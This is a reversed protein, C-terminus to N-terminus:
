MSIGFGSQSASLSGGKRTITIRNIFKHIGRPFDVYIDIVGANAEIVENPNNMADMKVSYWSIGRSSM